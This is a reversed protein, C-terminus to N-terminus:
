LEFKKRESVDKINPIIYESPFKKFFIEDLEHYTQAKKTNVDNKVYKIYRKTDAPFASSYTLIADIYDKRLEETKKIEEDYLKNFLENM